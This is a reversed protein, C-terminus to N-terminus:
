RSVRGQRRDPATPILKEQVFIPGNPRDGREKPGPSEDGSDGALVAIGNM